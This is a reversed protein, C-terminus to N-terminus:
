RGFPDSDPRGVVEHSELPRLAHSQDLWVCEDVPRPPRATFDHGARETEPRYIVGVARELRPPMLESRLEDAGHLGLPFSGVRSTHCVHACRRSRSPRVETVDM